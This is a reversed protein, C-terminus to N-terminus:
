RGMEATDAGAGHDARREKAVVAVVDPEAVLHKEVEVADDEVHDFNNDAVAGLDPGRRLDVGGVVRAIGLRSLGAKFEAARHPEAVIDPDAATGDDEGADRDAIASDDAGAAHDRPIDARTDDNGSVGGPRPRGPVGGPLGGQAEAKRSSHFAGMNARRVMLM